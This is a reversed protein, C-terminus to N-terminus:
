WRSGTLQRYTRTSGEVVLMVVGAVLAVGVIATGLLLRKLM